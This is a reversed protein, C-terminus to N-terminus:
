QQIQALHSLMVSMVIIMGIVFLIFLCVLCITAIGMYKFNLKHHEFATEFDAARKTENGLKIFKSFQLLCYIPFIYM